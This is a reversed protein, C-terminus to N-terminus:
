SRVQVAPGRREIRRERLVGEAWALDADPGGPVAWSLRLPQEDLEGPWPVLGDAAAQPLRAETEALYTVRGGHPRPLESDLLRLVIVELGFADRAAEVVPEIDQWWPTPVELAPLRGLVSGERTCLVLEATRPPPQADM